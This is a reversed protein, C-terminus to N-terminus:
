KVRQTVRQEVLVDYYPWVWSAVWRDALARHLAEWFLDEFWITRRTRAGRYLVIQQHLPFGYPALLGMIREDTLGSTRLPDVEVWGGDGYKGRATGM